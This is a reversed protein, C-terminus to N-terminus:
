FKAVCGSRVLELGDGREIIKYIGLWANLSKPLHLKPGKPGKDGGCKYIKIKQKQRNKGLVNGFFLFRGFAAGM